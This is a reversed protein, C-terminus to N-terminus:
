YVISQFYLECDFDLSVPFYKEICSDNDGFGCRMIRSFMAFSYLYPFM